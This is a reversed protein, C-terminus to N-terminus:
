PKFLVETQKTIKKIDIQHRGCIEYAKYGYDSMFEDLERIDRNMLVFAYPTIEAIIPPLNDRHEDLFGSAGLLVPLEFGETDIKILLINSLKLNKIYQDLRQLRISLTQQKDEEPVFGPIISHGGINGANTSIQCQGAKEGLAFNNAVIKYEQNMESITQLYKFYAPVPEFGHVQGTKGVLGAGIASIYGVNAGVDIFVGGEKLYKKMIRIVEIEYSECYRRKVMKGLSLDCLYKVGRIEKVAQGAPVKAYKCRHELWKHKYYLFPHRLVPLKPM